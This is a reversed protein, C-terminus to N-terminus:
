ISMSLKSIFTLKKTLLIIGLSLVLGCSIACITLLKETLPLIIVSFSGVFRWNIVAGSVIAAISLLMVPIRSKEDEVIIISQSCCPSILRSLTIRLSYAATLSTTVMIIIILVFSHRNFLLSEIILDKSYFGALFPFGILAFNAIFMRTITLPIQNGLNGISRLDQNHHHYHILYGACIFLLAKFLAHTILHFLAFFPQNIALSFMMIGLQSLTSLAIIKKLDCEFIASIGAKLSTLASMVLLIYSFISLTSLFPHFRILLFVGATVLTSSHVLASVPTPAAMAAPLWRSFPIQARKTIAAM